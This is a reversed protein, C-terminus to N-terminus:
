TNSLQFHQLDLAPEIRTFTGIWQPVTRRETWNLESWDRSRSPRQPVLCALLEPMPASTWEKFQGALMEEASWPMAWGRLNGSPHLSFCFSALLAQTSDVFLSFYCREVSLPRFLLSRFRRRYSRRAHLYICLVYVGGFTCGWLLIGGTTYYTGEMESVSLSVTHVPM